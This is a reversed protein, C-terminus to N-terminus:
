GLNTGQDDFSTLFVDGNGAQTQTARAATPSARRGSADRAPAVFVNGEAFADAGDNELPASSARGSRADPEARVEDPARRVPRREDRRQRRQLRRRLRQRRRRAAVSAGKDNGVTGFQDHATIAGSADFRAVVVDKDGALTAFLDGATLGASPPTAPATPPSAGRRTRPPRGSSGRGCRRAPRQRVQALFGDIGGPTQGPVEHRATGDTMGAVFVSGGGAAVAM